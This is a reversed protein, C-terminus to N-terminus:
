RRRALARRGAAAVLQRERAVLDDEGVVAVRGNRQGFNRQEGHQGAGAAQGADGVLALHAAVAGVGEAGDLFADLALAGDLPAQDICDTGFEFNSAATASAALFSAAM